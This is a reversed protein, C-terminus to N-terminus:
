LRAPPQDREIGTAWSPKHVGLFTCPRFGWLGSRIRILRSFRRFGWLGGGDGATLDKGVRAFERWFGYWGRHARLLGWYVRM